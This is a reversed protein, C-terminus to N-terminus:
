PVGAELMMEANGVGIWYTAGSQRDTPEQDEPIGEGSESATRCSRLKTELEM